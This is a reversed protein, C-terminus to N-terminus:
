VNSKDKCVNSIRTKGDVTIEHPCKKEEIVQPKEPGCAVILALCGVVLMKLMKIGKFLIRHTIASQALKRSFPLM